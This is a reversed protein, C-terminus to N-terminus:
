TEKQTLTSNVNQTSAPTVMNSIPYNQLRKLTLQSPSPADFAISYIQM